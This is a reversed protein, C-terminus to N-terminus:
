FSILLLLGLILLNYSLYFQKSDPNYSPSCNIFEIDYMRSKRDIRKTTEDIDSVDTKDLETCFQVEDGKDAKGSFLCCYDDERDKKFDTCNGFQKNNQTEEISCKERKFAPVDGSCSAAVRTEVGLHHDEYFNKFEEMKSNIEDQSASKNFTECYFQNQGYYSLVAVCCQSEDDGTPVVKCDDYTRHDSVSSEFNCQSIESIANISIILFLFALIIKM